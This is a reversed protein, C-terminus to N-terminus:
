KNKNNFSYKVSSEEYIMYILTTTTLTLQIINSEFYTKRYEQIVSVNYAEKSKGRM